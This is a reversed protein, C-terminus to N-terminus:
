RIKENPRYGILIKPKRNSECSNVYEDYNALEPNIGEACPHLRIEAKHQSLDPRDSDLHCQSQNIRVTQM